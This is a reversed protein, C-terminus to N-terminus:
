TAPKFESVKLLHLLSLFANFIKDQNPYGDIKKAPRLILEGVSDKDILDNVFILVADLQGVNFPLFTIDESCLTQKLKKVNENLSNCLKMRM